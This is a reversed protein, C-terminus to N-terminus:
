DEDEDLTTQGKQKLERAKLTARRAAIEQEVRERKRYYGLTEDHMREMIYATNRDLTRKEEEVRELPDPYLKYKVIEQKGAVARVIQCYATFRPLNTLERAMENVMDAETRQPHTLTKEPRVVIQQRKRPQYLGSDMTMLPNQSLAFQCLQLSETFKEFTAYGEEIARKSSGNSRALMQAYEDSTLDSISKKRDRLYDNIQKKADYIMRKEMADQYLRPFLSQAFLLNRRSFFDQATQPPNVLVSERLKEDISAFERQLKEAAKEAERAEEYFYSLNSIIYGIDDRAYYLYNCGKMAYLLCYFKSVASIVSQPVPHFLNNANRMGEYLWANLDIMAQQAKEAEKQAIYRNGRDRVETALSLPQLHTRVFQMVREDEHDQKLLHGVVDSKYTKVPEEGDIVEM